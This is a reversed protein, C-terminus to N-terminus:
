YITKCKSEEAKQHRVAKQRKARMEQENANSESCDSVDSCDSPTTCSACSPGGEGSSEEGSDSAPASKLDEVATNKSCKTMADAQSVCCIGAALGGLALKVLNKYM